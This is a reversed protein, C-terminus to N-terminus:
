INFNKLFSLECNNYFDLFNVENERSINKMEKDNIDDNDDIITMIM